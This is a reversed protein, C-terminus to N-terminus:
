IRDPLKFHTRIFQDREITDAIIYLVGYQINLETRVLAVMEECDYPFIWVSDQLRLFGFRQLFARLRDRINRKKERIDFILLRWRGDWKKPPTYKEGFDLLTVARAGKQSVSINGKGDELLFGKEILRKTADQIIYRPDKVRRHKKDLVRLIQLANPALLALSIVGAAGVVGLVIQQINQRKRRRASEEEIYGM